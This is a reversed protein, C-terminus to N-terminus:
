LPMPDIPKLRQLSVQAVEAWETGPFREAVRQYERRAAPLDHLEREAITAYQLSLAASRATEARLLDADSLASAALSEEAAEADDAAADALVRRLIESQMAAARELEALELAYDHAVPAVNITALEPLAVTPRDPPLNAALEPQNSRPIMLPAALLGLVISPATTRMAVRRVRKRRAAALLSEPSFAPSPEAQPRDVSQLLLQLPDNSMHRTLSLEYVRECKLKVGNRSGGGPPSPPPPPFFHTCTTAM